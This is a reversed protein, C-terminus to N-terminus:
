SMKREISVRKKQEKVSTKTNTGGYHKAGKNYELDGSSTKNQKRVWDHLSDSEMDTEMEKEKKMSKSTRKSSSAGGSKSVKNAKNQNQWIEQMQEKPYPMMAEQQRRVANERLKSHFDLFEKENQFVRGNGAVIKEDKQASGAGGMLMNKRIVPDKGSGQMHQSMQAPLHDAHIYIPVEGIGGIRNPHIPNVQKTQDQM